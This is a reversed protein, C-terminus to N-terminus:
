GEAVVEPISLMKPRRAFSEMTTLTNPFPL